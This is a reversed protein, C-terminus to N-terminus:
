RPQLSAHPLAPLTDLADSAENSAKPRPDGVLDLSSDSQLPRGARLNEERLEEELVRAEIELEQAM